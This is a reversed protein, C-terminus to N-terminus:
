DAEKRVSDATVMEKEGVTQIWCFTETINTQKVPWLEATNREEDICRDCLEDTRGRQEYKVCTTEGRSWM